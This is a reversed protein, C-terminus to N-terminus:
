RKPPPQSPLLTLSPPPPPRGTSRPAPEEVEPASPAARLRASPAAPPSLPLTFFFTSGRGVESEAGMAGGHAAVIGKCIYLGLGTGEKASEDARWFREFVHPLRDPAIGPGSDSVAFRVDGALPEARLVIAGGEPTFKIANGLLNSLVQVVRWRDCAVTVDESPTVRELRISKRAALLRLAELADDVLAGLAHPHRDLALRGADIRSMDLLDKILRDMQAVSRTIMAVTRRGAAGLEGADCQDSLLTAGMLVAGLPTRLDHSVVALVDQRQLVARRMQEYSRANDIAMAARHALEEAFALDASAYRRGSGLSALSLLGLLQGRARLPVVMLSALCTAPGAGAAPAGGSAPASPGPVLVARGAKLARARAERWCPELTLRCPGEPDREDGASAVRPPAGDDAFEELRCADALLQVALRAATELTQDHDLSAALAASVEALFHQANESRRLAMVDRFVLAAGVTAGGRRIPSATYSVPFPWGDRGL